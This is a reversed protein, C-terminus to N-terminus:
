PKPQTNDGGVNTPVQRLRQNVKEVRFETPRFSRGVWTRMQEYEEHDRNALIALFRLYGQPGGCDEPPCARGGELCIPYRAGAEPKLIDELLLRHSWGDGFDYEYVFTDGEVAITRGLKARKSNVFHLEYFENDPNPEGYEKKGIRFRYLHYNSWGMIDQLVLHLRHLTVTSPVIFRRWIPPEIEALEVRLQYIEADERHEPM